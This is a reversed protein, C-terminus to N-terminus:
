WTNRATRLPTFMSACCCSMKPPRLPRPPARSRYAHLMQRAARATGRVNPITGLRRAACSGSHELPQPPHELTRVNNNFSM